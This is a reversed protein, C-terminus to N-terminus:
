TQLVTHSKSTEAFFNDPWRDLVMARDGVPTGVRRFSSPQTWTTSRFRGAEEETFLQVAFEWEPFRRQSPTSCIAVTFTPDAGAIKM